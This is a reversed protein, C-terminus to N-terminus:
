NRIESVTNYLHKDYCLECTGIPTWETAHLIPGKKRGFGVEVYFDRPLTGVVARRLM